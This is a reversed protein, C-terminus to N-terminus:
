PLYLYEPPFFSASQRINELNIVAQRDELGFHWMGTHLAPIRLVETGIDRGQHLSYTQPQVTVNGETSSHWRDWTEELACIWVPKAM